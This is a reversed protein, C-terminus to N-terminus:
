NAYAENQLVIEPYFKLSFFFSSLIHSVTARSLSGISYEFLLWGALMIYMNCFIYSNETAPKEEGRQTEAHCKVDSM